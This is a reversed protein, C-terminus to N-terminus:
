TSRGKSAEPAAPRPNPLWPWRDPKADPPHKRPEFVVREPLLKSEVAWFADLKEKLRIFEPASKRGPFLNHQEWPDNQMDYFELAKNRGIILKFREDRVMLLPASLDKRVDMSYVINDKWSERGMLLNTMDRGQLGQAQMGALSLFTPAVDIISVPDQVVMGPSPTSPHRIIMPIGASGDYMLGKYLRGKEGMMDGHDALFVVCTDDSLGLNDLARLLRGIEYDVQSIFGYYYAMTRKFDAATFRKFQGQGAPDVYNPPLEMDDPDYMYSFPAVPNYPHHPQFYSAHLFFPKRKDRIESLWEVSRDTVWHADSLELPVWCPNAVGRPDFNWGKRLGTQRKLDYRDGLQQKLWPAYDSIGAETIYFEHHLAYQFGHLEGYPIYHLKGVTCTQHGAENFYHALTKINQNPKMENTLVATRTSHLGTMMTYRSPSCIPTNAYSHAFRVGQSALRDLNPTKVIKHGAVGMARPSFQDTIIILFNMAKADGGEQARVRPTSAVLPVGAAAGLIGASGAAAKELFERRNMRDSM